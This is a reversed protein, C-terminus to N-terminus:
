ISGYVLVCNSWFIIGHCSEPHPNFEHQRSFHWILTHTSKEPMLGYSLAIPILGIACILLFIKQLNLNSSTNSM